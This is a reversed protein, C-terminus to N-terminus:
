EGCIRVREPQRRCSKMESKLMAEATRMAEEPDSWAAIAEYIAEDLQKGHPSLAVALAAAARAKQFLVFAEPTVNETNDSLEFYRDDFGAALRELKQQMDGAEPVDRRLVRLADDAEDSPLGAQEVALACMALAARRRQNYNAQWYSAALRPSLAELCSLTRM